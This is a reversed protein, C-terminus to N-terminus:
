GQVIEPLRSLDPLVFTAERVTAREWRDVLVVDIGYQVAGRVDSEPDNGVMVARERSVGAERLAEEFIGPAPKEVGVVASAIIGDFYEEWGLRQIIDTLQIDWNSVAYVRCDLARLEELVRESDPYPNFSIRHQAVEALVESPADIDLEGATLQANHRRFEALDEHTRYAINERIHRRLSKWVPGTATEVTLAGNQSYPALDRVYGEVDLDVYLLTGDIDLFVADYRLPVNSSVPEM